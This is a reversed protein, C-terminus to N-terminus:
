TISVNILTNLTNKIHKSDFILKIGLVVLVENKWSGRAIL